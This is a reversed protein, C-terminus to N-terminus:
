QGSVADLIYQAYRKKMPYTLDCHDRDPVIDYTVAHGKGRMEKVFVDSHQGKNVMSDKECHFIHYRAEPPSIRKLAEELTGEEQSLASYLTRPLDDRETYHYAVNCVPCNVVCAAPTRKAYAAYVLASQGDMSGGTSVIPIDDGLSYEELLVDLIEDTYAVAQRNMWAWPNNYPVVYLIGKEGYFEGELTDEPYMALNGLGFFSLAIGRIPETCVRDNVYAFNRLNGHNMIKEM